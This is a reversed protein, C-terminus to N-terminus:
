GAGDAPHQLKIRGVEHTDLLDVVRLFVDTPVPEKRTIWLWVMQSSQGIAASLREVGGLRDAAQALAKAHLEPAM